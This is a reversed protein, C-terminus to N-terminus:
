KKGKGKMQKMYEEGNWRLDEWRPPKMTGNWQDWDNQLSQMKEPNDSSLDTQEGMDEALNILMPKMDVAAKVIKWDGQRIAYQPGFRWCFTRPELKEVDGKLLPMLNVGDLNWEPQVSGGAAALATPLIDLQIVPEHLVKGEPLHGKWQIM